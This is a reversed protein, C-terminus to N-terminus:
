AALHEAYLRQLDKHRRLRERLNRIAVYIKMMDPFLQPHRDQIVRPPLDFVFREVLVVQEAETAVLSSVLRWLEDRGLQKIVVEEPLVEVDHHAYQAARQQVLGARAV